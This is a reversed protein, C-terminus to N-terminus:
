VHGAHRMTINRALILWFAILNSRYYWEFPGSAEVVETVDKEDDEQEVVCRISSFERPM